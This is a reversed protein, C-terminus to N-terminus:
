REGKKITYDGIKTDQMCLRNLILPAIPYMRNIEKLFLDLYELKDIMEYTPTRVDSPINADIEDQLKQQEEPHTAWIYTCFSLVVSVMETAGILFISVNGLIEEHM